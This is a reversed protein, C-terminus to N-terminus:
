NAKFELLQSQRVNSKEKWHKQQSEEVYRNVTYSNVAGVTRYFYGASWFKKGWLKDRFLNWHHKHMMYSSFGKLLKAVNEVSHNKCNTCFIHCHDPGFGIAAITIGHKRAAAIIYDRTM